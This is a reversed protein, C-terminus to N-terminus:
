KGRFRNFNTKFHDTLEFEDWLDFLTFVEKIENELKFKKLNEPSLNHNWCLVYDAADYKSSLAYASDLTTKLEVGDGNRNLCDVGNQHACTLQLAAPLKEHGLLGLTMGLFLLLDNEDGHACNVVTKSETRYTTMDDLNEISHYVQTKARGLAYEDFRELLDSRNKKFWNVIMSRRQTADPVYKRFLRGVSGCGYIKLESNLNKDTLKFCPEVAHDNLWDVLGNCLIECVETENRCQPVRAIRNQLHEHCMTSFDTYGYGSLANDLASLSCNLKKCFTSKTLNADTNEAFWAIAEEIASKSIKFNGASAM